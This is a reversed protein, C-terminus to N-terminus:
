DERNRKPAGISATESCEATRSSKITFIFVPGKLGAKLPTDDASWGRWNSWTLPAQGRKERVADGILRNPWTNVVELELTKGASVAIRYPATWVTGLHQGDVKVNVIDHVEGLDLVGAPFDGKRVYRARGSFYRLREDDSENWLRLQPLDLPASPPELGEFSCISWGSSLDAVPEGVETRMGEVPGIGFAFFRSEGPGLRVRTLGGTSEAAVISGDVADLECGPDGEQASLKLFEDVASRSVNRVFWVRESRPGRRIRTELRGDAIRVLERDHVGYQLLFQGRRVYDTWARMEPWWTTNVNLQSGHRGLSAGPVRNVDAQHVYSHLVIRNVGAMWAEDGVAKLQAPTAQWRGEKAETTFAEAAVINKKHKRAARVISAVREGLPRGLWFETTLVDCKLAARETDFPGGYPETVAQVGAEHCLEAFRDYYNEAMLDATVKKMEAHFARTRERSDYAYGVLSVLHGGIEHGTRRKFEAPLDETWNQGGVEYSDIIVATVTGKAGPLSLIREPMNRWHAEIGKRSLKDCELGRVTAPAPGVGTTTYGIRLIRWNTEPRGGVLQRFGDVDVSGNRVASGVPILGDKRIATTAGECFPWDGLELSRVPIDRCPVWPPSPVASFTWKWTKAPRGEALAFTRVGEGARFCRYAKKGRSKWVGDVKASVEVDMYFDGRSIDLAATKPAFASEYSLEVEVRRQSGLPVAAPVTGGVIKPVASIPFAYTALDRVFGRKAPLDPLQLQGKGAASKLDVDRKSAVVVKMSDEPRIWPGGSSSWGPCNHFGLKVGNAKAEAIAYEFLSLWEPSMTEATPKLNSMHPAFIHAVAIGADGMAKLDRAIGERTVCDDLWHWWCQLACEAPPNRFGKVLPHTEGVDAACAVGGLLALILPFTCKM